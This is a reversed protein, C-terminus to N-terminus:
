NLQKPDIGEDKNGFIADWGSRYVTSSARAPGPHNKQASATPKTSHQVKVNFVRGSNDRPSLTVVEGTTIPQGEVLPRVEGVELTGERARLVRVGKQDETASHVVVIDQPAEEKPENDSMSEQM